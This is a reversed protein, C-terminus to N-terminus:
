KLMELFEDYQDGELDNITAYDFQKLADNIVKMTVGGAMAKTLRDIFEPHTIVTEPKTAKPPLPIETKIPGGRRVRWRGDATKTKTAAHLNENWIVGDSDTEQQLSALDRDLQEDLIKLSDQISEDMKPDFSSVSKNFDLSDIFEALKVLDTSTVETLMVNMKM